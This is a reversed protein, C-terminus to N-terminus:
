TSSGCRPGLWERLLAGAFRGGSILYRPGLRGPEQVLRVLWELGLRQLPRPARRRVGALVDLGGGVGVSVTAGLAEWHRELFYEQRPVGMGVILLRAGSRAVARAREGAEADGFYGDATGCLRLAPWRARVRRAAAAVVAARAGLLYVGVRDREARALLAEVLDVGAVREPLAPSRRRSIWVLPQGDAVVLAARDVFAQLRPDARMAMLVAVNVTAVHGRRGSRIMAAVAEVAQELTLPDFAGNLIRLRSM